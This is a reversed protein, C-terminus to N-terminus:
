APEWSPPLSGSPDLRSGLGPAASSRQQLQQQLQTQLLAESAADSAADAPTSSCSRRFSCSCSCKQLQRQLQTQLQKQLQTQLLAASTASSCSGRRPPLCHSSGVKVSRTQTKVTLSAAYFPQLQIQESTAASTLHSATGWHTHTILGQHHTDGDRQRRLNIDAARVVSARQIRRCM